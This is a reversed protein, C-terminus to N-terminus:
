WLICREKPAMKSGTPCGFAKQFQPLLSPPGVTRVPGPSHVDTQILLNLTEDKYKACWVQGWAVFMTQDISLPIGPLKQEENGGDAIKKNLWKKYADLAISLGGTDAINETSTLDGKVKYGNIEQKSFYDRFCQTKNKFNEKSKESWWDKLRGSADYNAGNNDFGHSIEHGIVAGIAAFNYYMPFTGDYFPRQLIGAPFLVSNSTPVYGANITSPQTGEWSDRPREETLHKNQRALQYRSYSLLSDLWSGDSRVEWNKYYDRLKQADMIFEPYGIMPAMEDAKFKAMKKTEEDMWDLEDMHEKFVEVMIKIMTDVKEKSERPFYREIYVKGVADGALELITGVCQEHRPAPLAGTTKTDFDESIERFQESLYPASGVLLRGVIYNNLTEKSTRELLPKLKEFYSKKKMVVDMRDRLNTYGKFYNGLNYEVKVDAFKMKNYAKNPDLSEADTPKPTIRAIEKEFNFVSNSFANADFATLGLLEAYKKLTEKYAACNKCDDSLYDTSLLPSLGAPVIIVVYTTPEKEDAHVYNALFAGASYKFNATTLSSIFNWNNASWAQRGRAGDYVWGGIDSIAKEILMMGDRNLRELDLCQRYATKMIFDPDQPDNPNKIKGELIKQVRAKTPEDLLGFETILGEDAAVDHTADWGGCAYNYFDQCPDASLNMKTGVMAAAQVCEMTQCPKESSAEKAKQQNSYLIALVITAVLLGIAIIALIVAIVRCANGKKRQFKKDPDSISLASVRKNDYLEAQSSM